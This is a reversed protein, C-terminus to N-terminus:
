LFPCEQFINKSIALKKQHKPLIKLMKFENSLLAKM